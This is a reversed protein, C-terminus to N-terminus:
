GLRAMLEAPTLIEPETIGSDTLDKDGSVIADAGCSRALAVLYDDAPDRLLALVDEPDDALESAARISAVLAEAAHVDFYRRMQPRFLVQTLESLLRDSVVATFARRDILEVVRAPNGAQSIAASIFVNPDVVVRLVDDTM